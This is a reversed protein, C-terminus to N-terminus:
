GAVARAIDADVEINSRWRDGWLLLTSLVWLSLEDGDRRDGAIFRKVESEVIALDIWAGLPNTRDAVLSALLDLVDPGRMWRRFPGGFGQKPLRRHADPLLDAVSEKFITKSGGNRLKWEVPLSFALDAVEVDLLPSRGELSNAMTARDVKVLIDGPLYHELDHAFAGDIPPLEDASWEGETDFFTPDFPADLALFRDIGNPLAMSAVRQRAWDSPPMEREIREGKGQWRRHGAGALARAAAGELGIRGALSGWRAALKRGLASSRLEPHRAYYLPYYWWDYGAFLEDGGDGALVVKVQEAAFKSIVYQPIHSPDGLPEDYVDAMRRMMEAIGLEVQLEHHETGYREAVMRAAPLEDIEAGFGVTFTKVPTSSARAMLAVVSGSDYGGSLFAGVPVDAAFLRRRVAAEVRRRIERRAEEYGITVKPTFRPRWWRRPEPEGNVIRACHGPPLTRINTFFTHRPSLYLYRTFYGLARPDVRGVIGAAFLSKIESAFLLRDGDIAWYLPKKGFRDRAMLARSELEDWFVFAFMGNLRELADLGQRILLHLLVETDSTTRFRVGDRELEARLERYNYIEGNFTLMYRGDDSVMPQTGGALDIISLRAHGFTAGGVTTIGHGDPGRHALAGVMRGLDAEREPAPVLRNRSRCLIGAIGCM